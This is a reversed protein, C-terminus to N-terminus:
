ANLGLSRRKRELQTDLRELAEKAKQPLHTLLIDAESAPLMTMPNTGHEKIWDKLTKADFVHPTTLFAAEEPIEANIPCTIDEELQVKLEAIKDALLELTDAYDDLSDTLCEIKDNIYASCSIHQYESNRSREQDVPEMYDHPSYGNAHFLDFLATCLAAGDEKNAVHKNMFHIKKESILLALAEEDNVITWSVSGDDQKILACRTSRHSYKNGKTRYLESVTLCGDVRSERLLWVRPPLTGSAAITHLQKLLKAHAVEPTMKAYISSNISPKAGFSQSSSAGSVAM